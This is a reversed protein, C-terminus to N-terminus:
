EHRSEKGQKTRRCWTKGRGKTDALANGNECCRAHTGCCMNQKSVDFITGNTSTDVMSTEPLAPETVEEIFEIETSGDKETFIGTWHGKMNTNEM